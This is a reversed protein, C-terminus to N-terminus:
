VPSGHRIHRSWSLNTVLQNMRPVSPKDAHHESNRAQIIWLHAPALIWSLPFGHALFAFGFLQLPLCSWISGSLDLYISWSKTLSLEDSTWEPVMVKVWGLQRKKGPTSALTWSLQLLTARWCRGPNTDLARIYWSIYIGWIILYPMMNIYHLSIYHWTM